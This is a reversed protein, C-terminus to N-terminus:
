LGQQGEKITSQLGLIKRQLFEKEAEVKTRSLADLYHDLAEERRNLLLNMKALTAFYLHHHELGELKKIIDLAEETKGSYFLAIGRNMQVIPAPNLVLLRDYLGLIIKWQTNQFSDATCHLSSIAAQLHYTSWPEGKRAANFHKIGSRILKGDWRSREQYELEIPIGCTDTRTDFRAINFLMLAYLAQTDANFIQKEELLERLLRIAELCLEKRILVKGSSASYGENFILYLVRHVSNLRERSHLAYPVRLPLNQLRIQQKTRTLNKKVAELKMDLARAIEHVQFGISTKLTLIIQSKPSLSPHCTAFLLRLQNDKIEGPLFIQDLKTRDELPFHTDRWPAYYTGKRRLANITKNKCVKFLWSVSDRPLGKKSWNDLAGYFTDQVIDEAWEIESLRFFSVLSAVLKGYHERYLRDVERKIDEKNEM